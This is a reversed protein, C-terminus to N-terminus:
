AHARRLHALGLRRRGRRAGPGARAPRGAANQQEILMLMVDRLTTESIAMTGTTSHLVGVKIEANAATVSLAAVASALLLKKLSFGRPLGRANKCTCCSCHRNVHHQRGNIEAAGHHLKQVVQPIACSVDSSRCPSVASGAAPTSGSPRRNAQRRGGGREITRDLGELIRDTKLMKSVCGPRHGVSRRRRAEARHPRVAGQRTRPAEAATPCGARVPVHPVSHTPM